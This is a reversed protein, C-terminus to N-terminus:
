RHLWATRDRKPPVPVPATTAAPVPAAEKDTIFGFTSDFLRRYLPREQSVPVASAMAPAAAHGPSPAVVTPPAASPTTAAVARTAPATTAKPAPKDDSGRLWGFMGGSSPREATATAQYPSPIPMPVTSAMALAVGGEGAPSVAPATSAVMTPRHVPQDLTRRLRGNQPVYAQAVQLGEGVLAAFTKEDQREKANVALAISPQVQYAPCPESPQFNSGAAPTADFVYRHDCVGVQPELHSVEFHDAGVKLNKWFAFNPDNRRRAMNEPTMRFPLAQVQFARQGGAFAERALAYIEAMQTDTMAYCGASLCDGHVMLFKGERGLSRDYANPFGLNFSLYYNSNPNMLAPSISYFGEPAQKDGEKKKPGLAGSWRCIEYSKLLAYRGDAQRKKWVELKSDEKYIRVLIPDQKRMGKEEMLAVTKAPIPQNAKVAANSASQTKCGALGLASVLILAPALSRLKLV